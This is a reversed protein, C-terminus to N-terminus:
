FVFRVMKLKLKFDKRQETTKNGKESFLSSNSPLLETKLLIRLTRYFQALLVDARTAGRTANGQSRGAARATGLQERHLLTYAARGGALALAGLSRSSCFKLLRPTHPPATPPPRRRVHNCRFALCLM